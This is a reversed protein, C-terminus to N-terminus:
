DAWYSIEREFRAIKEWGDERQYEILMSTWNGRDDRVYTRRSRPQTDEDPPEISLEMAGWPGWLEVADGHGDLRMGVLLEGTGEDVLEVVRWDEAWEFRLMMGENFGAVSVVRGSDDVVCDMTPRGQDGRVEFRGTADGADPLRRAVYVREGDFYSRFAVPEGADGFEYDMAIEYREGDGGPWEQRIGEARVVHGREVEVREVELSGSYEMTKGFSEGFSSEFGSLVGDRTFSFSYVGEDRGAEDAGPREEWWLEVSRVAGMLGMSGLSNGALVDQEYLPMSVGMGPFLDRQLPMIVGQGQGHAAGVTGVGALVAAVLKVRM